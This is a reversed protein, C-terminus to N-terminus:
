SEWPFLILHPYKYPPPFQTVKPIKPVLLITCFLDTCYQSGIFQEYYLPTRTLLNSQLPFIFLSIGTTPKQIALIDLFNLLREHFLSLCAFYERFKKGLVTPVHCNFNLELFLSLQCQYRSYFIFPFMISPVGAQHKHQIAHRLLHPIM